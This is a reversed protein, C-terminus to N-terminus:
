ERSTVNSGVLTRSFLLFVLPRRDVRVELDGNPLLSELRYTRGNLLLVPSGIGSVHLTFGPLRMPPVDIVWYGDARRYNGARAYYEAAGVRETRAATRILEGDRGVSYDEEVFGGYMSHTFRLTFRDVGTILGLVEGEGHALLLSDTQVSVALISTGLLLLAGALLALLRRGEVRAGKYRGLRIATASLM